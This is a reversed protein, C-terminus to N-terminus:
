SLRRASNSHRLSMESPIAILVSLDVPGEVAMRVDILGVFVSVGDGEQWKDPSYEVPNASHQGSVVDFRYAQRRLFYRIEEPRDLIV